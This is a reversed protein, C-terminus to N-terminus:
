QEERKHADEMLRTLEPALEPNAEIEKWRKKFRKSRAVILLV